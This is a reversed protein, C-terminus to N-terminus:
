LRVATSCRNGTRIKSEGIRSDALGRTPVPAPKLSRWLGPMVAHGVSAGMRGGAGQLQPGGGPEDAGRYTLPGEDQEDQQEEAPVGDATVEGSEILLRMNGAIDRAIGDAVKLEDGM